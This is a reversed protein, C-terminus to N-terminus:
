KRATSIKKLKRLRYNLLGDDIEKLNGNKLLYLKYDRFYPKEGPYYMEYFDIWKTDFFHGQLGNGILYCGDSIKGVLNFGSFDDPLKSPLEIRKENDYFANELTTDFIRYSITEIWGGISSPDDPHEDGHGVEYTVIRSEVNLRRKFGDPMDFFIEGSTVTGSFGTNSNFTKLGGDVNSDEVVASFSADPFLVLFSPYENLAFEYTTIIESNKKILVTNKDQYEKVSDTKIHATLLEGDTSIEADVVGMTHFTQLMETSNFVKARKNNNVFGTIYWLKKDDEDDSNLQVPVSWNDDVIKYKKFNGRADFYGRLNHTVVPIGSPEDDFIVPQPKNAVNGFIIKGDTWVYDGAKCPYNAAFILRKGSTDIAYGAGTSKIQTKYFAM